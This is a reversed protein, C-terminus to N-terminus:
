EIALQAIIKILGMVIRVNYIVLRVNKNLKILISM